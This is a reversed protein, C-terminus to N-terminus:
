FRDFDEQTAVEQYSDSENDNGAETLMDLVLGEELQEMETLSLGLQKARLMYLATNVDRDTPRTM